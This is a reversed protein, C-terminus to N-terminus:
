GGHLTYYTFSQVAGTRNEIFITNNTDISITLQGDSGTTGTLAGTAFDVGAAEAVSAMVATGDGQFSAIGWVEGGSVQHILIFGGVANNGPAFSIFDDDSIQVTARGLVFDKKLAETIFQSVGLANEIESKDTAAAVTAPDLESILQGIAM